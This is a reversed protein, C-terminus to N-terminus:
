NNNALYSIKVAYPKGLKFDRYIYGFMIGMLYPGIRIYPKIYYYPLFYQDNSDMMVPNIPYDKDVAIVM